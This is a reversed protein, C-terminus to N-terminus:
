MCFFSRIEDADNAVANVGSEISPLLTSTTLELPQIPYANHIVGSDENSLRAFEVDVTQAKSALNSIIVGYRANATLPVEVPKHTQVAYFQGPVFDTLIPAQDASRAVMWAIVVAICLVCDLCVLWTKRRM